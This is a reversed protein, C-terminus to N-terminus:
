VNLVVGEARYANVLTGMATTDGETTPPDVEGSRNWKVETGSRWKQEVEGSRNLKEVKNSKEVETTPPDVEPPLNEKLLFYIGYM